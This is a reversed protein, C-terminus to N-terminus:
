VELSLLGTSLLYVQAISYLKKNLKEEVTKNDTGETVYTVSYGDNNESKKEKKTGDAVEPENDLPQTYFDCYGEVIDGDKCIVKISKGQANYMRKQLETM